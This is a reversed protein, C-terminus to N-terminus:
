HVKRIGRSDDVVIRWVQKRSFKGWLTWAAYLVHKGENKSSNLTRDNIRNALLPIVFENTFAAGYGSHTFDTKLICYATSSGTKDLSTM